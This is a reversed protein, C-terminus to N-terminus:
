NESKICLTFHRWMDTTVTRDGNQPAVGDNHTTLHHRNIV